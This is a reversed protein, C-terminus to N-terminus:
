NITGRLSLTKPAVVFFAPHQDANVCSALGDPGNYQIEGVFKKVSVVKGSRLFVVGWRGRSQFDDCVDGLDGPGGCYATAICVRDWGTSLESANVKGMQLTQEYLSRVAMRQLLPPVVFVGAFIAVPVAVIGVFWAAVRLM